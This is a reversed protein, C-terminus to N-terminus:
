RSSGGFSSSSGGWREGAGPSSAGGWSAGGFREGLRRWEELKEPSPLVRTVDEKVTRLLTAM